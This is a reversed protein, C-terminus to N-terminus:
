SFSFNRHIHYNRLYKLKKKGWQQALKSLDNNLRLPEVGHRRRLENHVQLAERFFESNDQVVTPHKPVVAVAAAAAAPSSSSSTKPKSSHTTQHSHQELQPFNTPNTLPRFGFRDLDPVDNRNSRLDQM